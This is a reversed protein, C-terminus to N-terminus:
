LVAALVGVAAWLLLGLSAWYFGLQQWSEMKKFQEVMNGLLPLGLKIWFQQLLWWCLGLITTFCILSLLILLWINPHIYGATPDAHVLLQQLLLWLLLLVGVLAYAPYNRTSNKIFRNVFPDRESIENKVIKLTNM